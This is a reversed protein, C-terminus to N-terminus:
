FSKTLVRCPFCTNDWGSGRYFDRGPHDAIFEKMTLSYKELSDLNYLSINEFLDVAHSPHTHADVFSPMVLKGGVDLVKTEPNIISEFDDNSGIGVIKEGSIAMATAWPVKKDLTYIVGNKLVLDPIPDNM